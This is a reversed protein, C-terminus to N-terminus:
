SCNLILDYAIDLIYSRFINMLAYIRLLCPIVLDYVFAAILAITFEFVPFGLSAERRPHKKVQCLWFIGIILIFISLFFCSIILDGLDVQGSGTFDCNNVAM